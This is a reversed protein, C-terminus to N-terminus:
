LKLTKLLERLKEEYKDLSKAFRLPPFLIEKEPKKIEKLEQKILHRLIDKDEKKM